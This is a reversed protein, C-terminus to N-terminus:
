GQRPLRRQGGTAGQPATMGSRTWQTPARDTDSQRMAGHATSQAQIRDSRACPKVWGHRMHHGTPTHRAQAQVRAPVVKFRRTLATQVSELSIELSCLSVQPQVTFRSKKSLPVAPAKRSRRALRPNRVESRALGKELCGGLSSCARQWVNTTLVRKAELLLCRAQIPPTRIGLDLELAHM